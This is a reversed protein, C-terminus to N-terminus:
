IGFSCVIPKQSPLKYTITTRSTSRYSIVFDVDYLAYNITPNPCKVINTFKM